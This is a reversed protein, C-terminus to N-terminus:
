VFSPCRLYIQYIWSEGSSEALLHGLLGALATYLQQFLDFRILKQTTKYDYYPPFRCKTTKENARNSKIDVKNKDHKEM